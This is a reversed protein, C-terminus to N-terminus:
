RLKLTMLTFIIFIIGIIWFRIIIKSENWGKMQFHHHLPSMKFIRKGTLKFSAVQLIVSIVEIVFVGGVLGLLLEKKILVAITGLMGGLALSGTDGMFVNAPYCNFWLFGLSAGFIAACFVTLEAAQPIHPIFLYSSFVAHGTVYSLISFALAVMMVLGIALGDLGDTINVANSSACIVLVIFFIYFLGLDLVIRKLFPIDIVTSFEGGSILVVGIVLGLLVQWFLKAKASLGKSKKKVLKLYDDRFGVLGLWLSSVMCLLIYKNSLDAWLFVSILISSVILLGGMTPTGQKHPQLNYLAICEDKRINEGIKLHTLKRVLYPGFIVCLLFSTVISMGARFTIYRFINFAFFFDSLPYLFHYFM